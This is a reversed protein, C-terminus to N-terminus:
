EDKGVLEILVIKAPSRSIIKFDSGKKITIADAPFYTYEKGNSIVRVRGEIIVVYFDSNINKPILVDEKEFYVRKIIEKKSKLVLEETAKSRNKEPIEIPENKLYDEKTFITQHVPELNGTAVKVVHSGYYKFGMKQQFWRSKFNGRFYGASIYDLGLDEFAYKMVAKVAETMIKQRHYDESLVFGIERGKKDEFEKYFESDVPHLGLSGIVKGDKEIALVDKNKKFNELVKKTDEISKHHPWGAMEGLGPTKAYEYFDELDGDKFARLILRDTKIVLDSFDVKIDM